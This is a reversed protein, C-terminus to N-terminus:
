TASAMAYHTWRGSDCIHVGWANADQSLTGRARVTLAWTHIGDLLAVPLFVGQFPVVDDVLGTQCTTLPAGTCWSPRVLVCSKRRLCCQLLVVWKDTVQHDRVVWKGEAWQTLSMEVSEIWTGWRLLHMVRQVWPAFHHNIQGEM